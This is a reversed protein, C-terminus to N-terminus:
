ILKIIDDYRKKEYIIYCLSEFLKTNTYIYTHTHVCGYIYLFGIKQVQSCLYVNPMYKFYTFFFSCGSLVM